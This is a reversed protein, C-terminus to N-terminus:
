AAERRLLWDPISPLEGKCSRKFPLESAADSLGLKEALAHLKHRQRWIQARLEHYAHSNLPLRYTEHQLSRFDENVTLLKEWWGRRVEEILRVKMKRFLNM